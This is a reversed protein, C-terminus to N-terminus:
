AKGKKRVVYGVLGAIAFGIMSLLVTSTEGTNPLLNKNKTSSEGISPLVNKNKM